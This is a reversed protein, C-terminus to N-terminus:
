STVFSAGEMKFGWAFKGSINKKRKCLCGCLCAVPGCMWSYFFPLHDTEGCLAENKNLTGCEMVDWHCSSKVALGPPCKLPKKKERERKGSAENSVSNCGEMEPPIADTLWLALVTSTNVKEGKGGKLGRIGEAGQHFPPFISLGNYESSGM